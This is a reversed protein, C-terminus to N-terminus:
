WTMVGHMDHWVRKLRWGAALFMLQDLRHVWSTRVYRRKYLKERDNRLTKASNNIEKQVAELQEATALQLESIVFILQLAPWCLVSGAAGFCLM